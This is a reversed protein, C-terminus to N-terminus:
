YNNYYEVNEKIKRYFCVECSDPTDIVLISKNM